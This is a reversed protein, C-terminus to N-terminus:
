LAESQGHTETAASDAISMSPSSPAESPSALSNDQYTLNRVPVGCMNTSVACLSITEVREAGVLQRGTSKGKCVATPLLVSTGLVFQRNFQPATGTIEDFNDSRWLLLENWSIYIWVLLLKV